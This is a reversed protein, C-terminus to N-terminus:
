AYEIHKTHSHRECCEVDYKNLYIIIQVEVLADLIRLLDKHHRGAAHVSVSVLSLQVETTRQGFDDKLCRRINLTSTDHTEAASLVRSVPNFPITYLLINVKTDGTESSCSQLSQSQFDHTARNFIKRIRFRKGDAFADGFLKVKLYSHAKTILSIGIEPGDSGDELIQRFVRM